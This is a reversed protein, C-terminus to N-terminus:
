DLNPETVPGSFVPVDRLWNSERSFCIVVQDGRREATSKNESQTRM